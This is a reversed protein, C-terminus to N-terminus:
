GSNARLQAELWRQENELKRHEIADIPGSDRTLASSVSRLREQVVAVEVDAGSLAQETLISVRGGGLVELFGVGIALRVSSGGERFRVVGPLLPTIFPVHDPLVGIEGEVGPVEVGAVEVGSYKAGKPTLIDLIITSRAM